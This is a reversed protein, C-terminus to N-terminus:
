TSLGRLSLATELAWIARAEPVDHLAELVRAVDELEVYSRAQVATEVAAAPPPAAKPKRGPRGARPAQETPSPPPETVEETEVFRDEVVTVAAPTATPGAAAPKEGALARHKALLREKFSQQNAMATLRQAPVNIPNKARCVDLFQCGRYAGCHALNRPLPDGVIYEAMHRGYTEHLWEMMMVIEARTAFFTVVEWLYPPHTEIYGWEFLVDGGHAYSYVIRQPDHLMDRADAWALDSTSKHDRVVGAWRADPTGRYRVGRFVFSVPKEVILGPMKSPLSPLYETAIKGARTPPPAKRHTLYKAVHAHFETGLAQAVTDPPRPEAEPGYAFGWLAPCDAFAKVASPRLPEIM